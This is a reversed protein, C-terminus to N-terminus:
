RFPVPWPKVPGFQDFKYLLRNRIMILLHRIFGREDRGRFGRIMSTVRSLRVVEAFALPKRRFCAAFIRRSSHDEEFLVLGVRCRESVHERFIGSVLLYMELENESYRLKM